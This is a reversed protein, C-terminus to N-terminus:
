QGLSSRDVFGCREDCGNETLSESRRERGGATPRSGDTRGRPPKAKPFQEEEYSGSLIINRDREFREILDVVPSPAPTGM